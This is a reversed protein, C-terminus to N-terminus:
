VFLANIKAIVSGGRAGALWLEGGADTRVVGIKKLVEVEVESSDTNVIGKEDHLKCRMNRKKIVECVVWNNSYGLEFTAITYLQNEATDIPIHSLYPSYLDFARENVIIQYNGSITRLRVHSVGWIDSLFVSTEDGLGELQWDVLELRRHDGPWSTPTYDHDPRCDPWELLQSWTPIWQQSTARYPFDFLLEIKRGLPLVDFCQAWADDASVKANYTPLETIRLLYLLGAVQDTAQTACRKAMERALHYVSCGGPSDVVAALKLVPRIARRLTIVNGAVTGKTDMIIKSSRDDRPIGGNITRQETRIEQLTWARKLWHRPSDWGVNVFPQGLGNFYRVIGEAARYINGITPVDIKWEEDRIANLTDSPIQFANPTTSHQRLCLVDLWVYVIGLGLLEKRVDHLDLGRPLPVPWQYQNISTTVPEMTDTWSHTIAWYAPIIPTSHKHQSVFESALAESHLMRFEVVRNSMVDWIRRPMVQYPEKIRQQKTTSTNHYTLLNKRVEDIERAQKLWQARHAAVNFHPDNFHKWGVRVAACALGLDYGQFVFYGVDNRIWYELREAAQTHIGVHAVLMNILVEKQFSRCPLGAQDSNLTGGPSLRLIRINDFNADTLPTEDRFKVPACPRTYPMPFPPCATNDPRGREALTNSLFAILKPGAKGRRAADLATAYRCGDTKYTGGVHFPDAGRSLLFSVLQEDGDYSAKGLASGDDSGVENIDVGKYLLLSLLEYSYPIAIATGLITRYCGSMRSVDVGWDMLLSVTEKDKKWLAAILATGYSGVTAITNVDAGRDLLMPVMGRDNCVAAILATGYHGTTAITSVDAGRGLLLSVIEGDGNYIAAILATGYSGVTATTNVDAGRGLLMSLMRRDKCVAAILATGYHGTTAITSVDAGRDLLLSVIKGDGNYVAAILATGYSGATAITNVDARRGLLMSVIGRGRCTAAILATGYDGTTAITNVDAGLDLLYSAIARYKCAAAILATGYSGATAIM